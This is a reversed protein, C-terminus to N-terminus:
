PGPRRLPEPKRLLDAFAPLLSYDKQRPMYVLGRLKRTQAALNVWVEMEKLNGAEGCCAVLTRSGRGAFFGLSAELRAGGSVVMILNRPVHEWSGTFDGDVLYYNSHADRNPDLLGSWVYVELSPAYNRLSSVQKTICEGLLEGMNHGRCARCTGGM